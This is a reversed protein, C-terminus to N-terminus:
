QSVGRMTSSAPAQTSEDQSLPREENADHAHAGEPEGTLYLRVRKPADLVAPSLGAGVANRYEPCKRSQNEEKTTVEIHDPCVCMSFECLHDRHHGEPCEDGNLVESSFRHARVIKGGISFSGYWKVAKRAKKSKRRSGGKSRAGTWYWCGNPLIDVKAMFRDVDAQTAEILGCSSNKLM